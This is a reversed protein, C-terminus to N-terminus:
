ASARFDAERKVYVARNHLTDIYDPGILDALRLWAARERRTFPEALYQRLLHALVNEVNGNICFDITIGAEALAFGFDAPEKDAYKEMELLAEVFKEAQANTVDTETM